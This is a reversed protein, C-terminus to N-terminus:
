VTGTHPWFAILPLQAALRRRADESGDYSWGVLWSLVLGVVPSARFHRREYATLAAVAESQDLVRWLPRFYTGGIAVQVPPHVQINRYWDASSGLGVVVIVENRKPGTGIVELMTHYRRGSRRGVHTLRVFRHGLIWGLNWDYLKAPARLLCRV